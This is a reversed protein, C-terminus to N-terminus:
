IMHMACGSMRAMASPSLRYPCLLPQAFFSSSPTPRCIRLAYEAVREGIDADAKTQLEIHLAVREKGIDVAWILDAQRPTDPLEPSLEERWVADPKILALVGDHAQTLLRKLAQDYSPRPSAM